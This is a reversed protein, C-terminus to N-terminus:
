ANTEQEPLQCWHKAQLKVGDVNYAAYLNYQTAMPLWKNVLLARKWHTIEM